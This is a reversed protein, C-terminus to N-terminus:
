KGVPCIAEADSRLDIRVIRQNLVDAVYLHGARDISCSMPWGLPIPPQPLLSDPGASDANGYHGFRAILNGANDYVRICFQLADPVYLRGFPDLDFRAEKCVCGRDARPSLGPYVTTAGEFFYDDFALGEREGKVAVIGGGLRSVKVVCGTRKDGKPTGKPGGRTGLYLNGERDVKIGGSAGDLPGAIGGAVRDHKEATGDPKFVAVFYKNWDYMSRIYIRGDRTVAIGKNSWGMGYRGYVERGASSKTTTPKGTGSFPVPKFNRDCRYIPENWGKRGYLYLNGDPGVAMDIAKIPIPGGRGTLGDYKSLANWGNNAYVDNTQPDAWVKVIAEAPPLDENLAGTLVLQKGRDEIRVLREGAKGVNSLWIVPPASAADVAMAPANNGQVTTEALVKGDVASSLKVVRFENVAKYGDIVKRTTVYVCGDKGGPSVLDPWDIKTQGLLKGAPDYVALRQNVRDCVLLRGRSDVAMGHLAACGNKRGWNKFHYWGNTETLWFSDKPVDIRVFQRAKGTAPDVKYIIGDRPDVKGKSRTARQDWWGTLYLQKADGSVAWKMPGGAPRMTKPASKWQVASGDTRIRCIRGETNVLWLVGRRVTNGLFGTIGGQHVYPVLPHHNGPVVRGDVERAGGYEALADLKLKAPMPLVSRVYRGKRDFVKISYVPASSYVSGSAVYLHGRADTALGYIKGMLRGPDGIVRGLVPRLGARVRVRLPGAAPPKGADDRGDWVLRQALGGKLPAAAPARGGVVGAALHRVVKGRQDLVAVEVDTPRSVAFTIVVKQGDRVARPAAALKVPADDKAPAALTATPGVALLGSGVLFCLAPWWGTVRGESMM